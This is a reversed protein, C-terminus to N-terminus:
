NTITFVPSTLPAVNNGDYIIQIVYTGATVTKKSASSRDLFLDRTNWTYSTQNPGVQPLIIGVSQNSNVDILSISGSFGGPKNWSIMNQTGITWADNKVPTIMKLVLPTPSKQAATLSHSPTTSPVGTPPTQSPSNATVSAGTSTNNAATSPGPNSNGMGYVIAFVIVIVVIVAVIVIKSVNSLKSM